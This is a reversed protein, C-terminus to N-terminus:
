CRFGKRQGGVQVFFGEGIYEAVRIVKGSQNMVIKGSKLHLICQLYM